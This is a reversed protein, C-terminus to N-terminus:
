YETEARIWSAADYARTCVSPPDLGRFTVSRGTLEGLEDSEPIPRGALEEDWVFCEAPYLIDGDMGFFVTPGVRGDDQVWVVCYPAGLCTVDTGSFDAPRGTWSGDPGQLLWLSTLFRMAQPSAPNEPNTVWVSNEISPMWSGRVSATSQNPRRTTAVVDSLVRTQNEMVEFLRELHPDM